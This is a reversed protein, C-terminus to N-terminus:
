LFAFKSYFSRGFIGRHGELKELVDVCAEIIEACDQRCISGGVRLVENKGIKIVKCEISSSLVAVITKVTCDFM